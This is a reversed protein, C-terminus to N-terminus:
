PTNRGGASSRPPLVVESCVQETIMALCSLAPYAGVTDLENPCPLCRRTERGKKGALQTPGVPGQLRLVYSEHLTIRLLM